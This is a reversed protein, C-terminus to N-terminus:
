LSLGSKSLSIRVIDSLSPVTEVSQIDPQNMWKAEAADDGALLHGAPNKALICHLVYHFEDEIIEKIHFVAKPTIRLGTEESVERIAAESITEGAEVKGGPLAWLGQNPARARRVLLIKNDQWVAVCVALVPRQPTYSHNPM